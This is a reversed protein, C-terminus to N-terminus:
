TSRARLAAICLAIAPTSGIVFQRVPASAFGVFAANRSEVDWMMGEPVLMLAADLSATYNLLKDDWIGISGKTWHTRHAGGYDDFGKKVPGNVLAAGSFWIEADLERSPGTAAELAAILEAKTM